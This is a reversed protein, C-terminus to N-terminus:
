SSWVLGAHGIPCGHAHFDMIIKSPIKMDCGWSAVAESMSPHFEIVALVNEYSNPTWSGVIMAACFNRSCNGAPLSHGERGFFDSGELLRWGHM